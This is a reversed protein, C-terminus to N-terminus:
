SGLAPTEGYEFRARQAARSAQRFWEPAPEDHRYGRLLDPADQFVSPDSVSAIPEPEVDVVGSPWPEALLTDGDLFLRWPLRAGGRPQRFVEPMLLMDQGRASLYAAANFTKAAEPPSWRTKVEVWQDTEPLYFDPLYRVKSKTWGQVVTAPVILGEPEYQFEIGAVDFFVAWRAELRSRFRFGEYETEIVRM